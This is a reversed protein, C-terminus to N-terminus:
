VHINLGETEYRFIVYIEYNTVFTVTRSIQIDRSTFHYFLSTSTSKYMKSMLHYLFLIAM